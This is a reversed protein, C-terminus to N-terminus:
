CCCADVVNEGTKRGMAKNGQGIQGANEETPTGPGTAPRSDAGGTASRTQFNFLFVSVHVNLVIFTSARYINLLILFFCVAFIRILAFSSEKGCFTFLSFSCFISLHM